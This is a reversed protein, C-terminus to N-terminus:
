YKRLRSGQPVKNEQEFPKDRWGGPVIYAMAEESVGHVDRLDRVSKSIGRVVDSDPLGEPSERRSRDALDQPVTAVMVGVSASMRRAEASALGFGGAGTSPEVARTPPASVESLEDPM